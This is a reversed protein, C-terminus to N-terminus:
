RHCHCCIYYLLTSAYCYCCLSVCAMHIRCIYMMIRLCLLHYHSDNLCVDINLKAFARAYMYVMNHLFIHVHICVYCRFFRILVSIIYLSCACPMYASLIISCVYQVGNYYVFLSICM